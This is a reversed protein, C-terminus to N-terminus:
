GFCSRKWANANEEHSKHLQKEYHKREKYREVASEKIRESAPALIVLAILAFITVFIANWYEGVGVSMGIAAVLWITAATTLGRIKNKSQQLTGAGLFGVGSIVQPAIRGANQPENYQKGFIELALWTFMCSAVAIMMNTRVGASQGSRAREIGVVSGLVGSLVIRLVFESSLTM